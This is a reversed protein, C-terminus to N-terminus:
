RAVASRAEEVVPSWTDPPSGAMQVVPPTGQADLVFQWVNPTDEPITVPWVVRRSAVNECFNKADARVRVRDVRGGVEPLKYVVPIDALNAVL